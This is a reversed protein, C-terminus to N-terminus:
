EQTCLGKKAWKEWLTGTVVSRRGGGGKNKHGFSASGRRRRGCSEEGKMLATRSLVVGWVPTWRPILSVGMFLAFFLLLGFFSFVKEKQRKRRWCSVAFFGLILGLVWRFWVRHRLVWLIAQEEGSLVYGEGVGHRQALRRAQEFSLLDYTCAHYDLLHYAALASSQLGEQIYAMRLIAYPSRVGEGRVRAYFAYAETYHGAEFLSDASSLFSQGYLSGGYGLIVILIYLLGRM